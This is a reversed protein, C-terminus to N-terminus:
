SLDSVTASTSATSALFLPTPDIVWPIPANRRCPEVKKSDRTPAKSTHCTPQQKKAVPGALAPAPLLAAAVIMALLHKGQM